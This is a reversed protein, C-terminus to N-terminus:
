FIKNRVQVGSAGTYFHACSVCKFQVVICDFARSELSM